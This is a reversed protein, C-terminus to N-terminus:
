RKEHRLSEELKRTLHENDGRLHAEVSLMKDVFAEVGCQLEKIIEEDRYVRIEFYDVPAPLRPDFSVFDWWDTECIWMGGYVQKAYESPLKNEYVRAVQVHSTPCKIELGGDLEIAYNISDPSCGIFDNHEVFGVQMIALEPHRLEYQARAQDEYENGWDMAENRYREVPEGSWKEALLRFILPMVQVSPEGKKRGKATATAFESATIKGIRLQFWEPSGQVIDRYVKM